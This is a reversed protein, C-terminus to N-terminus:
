TELLEMEGEFLVLQKEDLSKPNLSVMLIGKYLLVSEALKQILSLADEFTNQIVLYDLGDLLLISDKRSTMFEKMRLLINVVNDPPISNEKSASSLQLIKQKKLKKKRLQEPSSRTIMLGEYGLRGYEKLLQLSKKPQPELLLYIHGKELKASVKKRTAFFVGVVALAALAVGGYMLFNTEKKEEVQVQQMKQIEAVKDRCLQAKDNGLKTYIVEAKQFQNIADGYTGQELLTEGEAFYQDATALDCENIKVLAEEELTKFSPDKEALLAYQAQATEFQSKAEAYKGESYLREGETFASDAKTKIELIQTIEAIYTRCLAANDQDGIQTFIKEAEEFKARAQEYEKKKYLDEGQSLLVKARTILEQPPTVNKFVTVKTVGGHILDLKGDKTVDAAYLLPTENAERGVSISQVEEKLNSYVIIHGIVDTIVLDPKGDQTVESILLFLPQNSPTLMLTEKEGDFSLSFIDSGSIYILEKKSDNNIDYTVASRIEGKVTRSWLQEGSVKRCYISHSTVIFFTDEERQLIFRVDGAVSFTYKPELNVLYVVDGASTGYIIEDLPTGDFNVAQMATVDGVTSKEGLMKGTTSFVYLGRSAVVVESSEEKTANCITMLLIRYVSPVNAFISAENRRIVVVTGNSVGARYTVGGVLIEPVQDGELDGAWLSSLASIKGSLDHTQEQEFVAGASSLAMLSLIILTIVKGAM